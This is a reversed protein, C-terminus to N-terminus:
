ATKPDVQAEIKKLLAAGALRLFPRM